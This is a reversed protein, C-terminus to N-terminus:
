CLCGSVSLSDQGAPHRPTSASPCEEPVGGALTWRSLMVMQKHVAPHRPTSASSCEEHKHVAPHMSTSESSCEEPIVSDGVGGGGGDILM